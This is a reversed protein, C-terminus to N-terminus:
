PKVGLGKLHDKALEEDPNEKLASRYDAVAEDIRGLAELTIGRNAIAQANHPALAVAKDFHSLAKQFNNRDFYIVGLNNHARLYNPDIDIVKEYDELAKNIKGKANYFKGRNYYALVYNPRAALAKNADDIAADFNGKAEWVLSRNVYAMALKPDIELAKNLHELAKNFDQAHILLSGLNGHALADNPDKEILALCGAIATEGSGEECAKHHDETEVTAGGLRALAQQSNEHKPDISLAKRYDAIAENAKGLGEYVRGRTYYAQPNKPEIDIAKNIDPLAREHDNALMRASASSMWTDANGPEIEAAKGYDAIALQYRKLMLYAAARFRRTNASSPDLEIAKSYATVAAEYDGEEGALDGDMLASELPTLTFKKAKPNAAAIRGLGQVAETFLSKDVPKEAYFTSSFLETVRQFDNKAADIKGLAENAKGRILYAAANKPDANILRTCASVATEAKDGTCQKEDDGSPTSSGGGPAGNEAALRMVGAKADKNGAELRLARDYDAKAEDKKSLAEYSKGRRVYYDAEKDNLGIAKSFDAIAREYEGKVALSVGRNNLANEDNPDVELAKSYDAIASDDDGSQAAAAGRATYTDATKHGLEIAKTFDAIAKAWEAKEMYLFGRGYFGYWADPALEIAKQYDALARADDGKDRFGKARNSYAAATNPKAKLVETCAAIKVEGKGESCDRAADSGTYGSTEVVQEYAMGSRAPRLDVAEDAAAATIRLGLAIFALPVLALTSSKIVTMSEVSFPATALLLRELRSSM